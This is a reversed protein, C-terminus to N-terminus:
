ISSSGRPYLTHATLSVADDTGKQAYQNTVFALVPRAGDISIEVQKMEVDKVNEPKFPQGVYYDQVLPHDAFKDGQFSM